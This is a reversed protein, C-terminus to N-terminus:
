ETNSDVAEGIAEDFALPEADEELCLAVVCADPQSLDGDANLFLSWADEIRSKVSPKVDFHPLDLLYEGARLADEFGQRYQILAITESWIEAPVLVPDPNELAERAEEHHVDNESFLAYLASTDAVRM